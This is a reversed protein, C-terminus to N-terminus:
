RGIKARIRRIEADQAETLTAEVDGHGIGEDLTDFAYEGLGADAQLSALRITLDLRAEHGLSETKEQEQDYWDRVRDFNEAKMAELCQEDTIPEKEKKEPPAPPGEMSM